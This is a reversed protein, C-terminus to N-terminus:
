KLLIYRKIFNFILVFYKWGYLVILFDLLFPFPSGIFYKLIGVSSIIMDSLTTLAEGVFAPLVPFTPLISFIFDSIYNVLALVAKIIM